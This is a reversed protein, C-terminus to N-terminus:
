PCCSFHYGSAAVGRDVCDPSPLTAVPCEFSFPRSPDTCKAESEARGHVFCGTLPATVPHDEATTGGSGSATGAAGSTPPAGGSGASGGENISGGGGPGPAPGSSTCAPLLAGLVTLLLIRGRM